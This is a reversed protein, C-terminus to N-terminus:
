SLSNMSDGECCDEQEQHPYDSDLMADIFTKFDDSEEIFPKNSNWYLFRRKLEGANSYQNTSYEGQEAITDMRPPAAAVNSLSSGNSADKSIHVVNNKLM